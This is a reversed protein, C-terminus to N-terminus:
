GGVMGYVEGPVVQVVSQMGVKRLNKREATTLSEGPLIPFPSGLLEPWNRHIIKVIEDDHFASHDMVQISHFRDHTVFAFLLPGTRNAFGKGNIIQGLHFHHVGWDWLLLDQFEPDMIRESLHENINRGRVIKKCLGKYGFLSDKPCFFEMSEVVERKCPPVRRAAMSYFRLALDSASLNDDVNIRAHRFKALFFEQLDEWLNLVPEEEM